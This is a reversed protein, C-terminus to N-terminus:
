DRNSIIRGCWSGDEDVMTRPKNGSGIVELLMESTLPNKEQAIKGVFRQGNLFGSELRFPDVHKSQM